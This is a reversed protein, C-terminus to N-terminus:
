CQHRRNRCDALCSTRQGPHPHGARGGTRAAGAALCLEVDDNILLPVNYKACLTQLAGAQDLRYQWDSGKDRYQLLSIGGALAQEAATLLEDGPTLDSDTIAYIGRLKM